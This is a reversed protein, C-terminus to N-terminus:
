SGKKREAALMETIIKLHNETEYTLNTLVPTIEKPVSNKLKYFQRELLASELDRAISLAQLSSLDGHKARATQNEVYEISTKVAEPKLQINSTLWEGANSDSRLGKLWDAHRKEDAALNQWFVEHVRFMIAFNEYLQMISLEHRILMALVDLYNENM